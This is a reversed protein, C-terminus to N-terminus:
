AERATAERRTRVWSTTRSRFTAYTKWAAYYPLASLSTLYRLPLGLTLFPSLAYLIFIILMAAHFPLLLSSVPDLRPLFLALPHITLVALLTSLLAVLPPFVLELLSLLKHVPGLVRSALLPGRVASRLARRGEEWRRRQSVAAQGRSVMEAYVRTSPVFRVREGALRLQWSFEQDEVLGNARWPIRALARTSLCMGNGRFGVSLGLSDQGLLWVGNFLSFAYTLLRTRWSADPNRVTYYCQAWDAGAALVRAFALLLNRDVLTDADVLVVAAYHALEGSATMQGLVDELAFGKSRREPNLREVVEAGAARAVSATADSCNDAIVLVAFDTPAYDVARCSAVTAAISPQEDHAPIVFLFRPLTEPLPGSGAGQRRLLAAVTVLALFGLFPALALTAIAYALSVLPM